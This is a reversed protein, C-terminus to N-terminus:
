GWTYWGLAVGGLILTFGLLIMKLYTSLRGTTWLQFAASFYPFLSGARNFGADVGGEDAEWLVGAITRYPGAIAIQIGKPSIGLHNTRPVYPCEVDVDASAFVAPTFRGDIDIPIGDIDVCRLHDCKLLKPRNTLLSM